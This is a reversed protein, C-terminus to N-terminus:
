KKDEPRGINIGLDKALGDGGGIRNSDYRKHNDQREGEKYAIDDKTAAHNFDVQMQQTAHRDKLHAQQNEVEHEVVKRDKMGQAKAFKESAEGPTTNIEGIQEQKLDSVNTSAAINTNGVFIDGKAEMIKRSSLERFVGQAKSSGSLVEQAAARDGVNYKQKYGEIVEQTMDRNFENNHSEVYDIKKNYSDINSKHASMSEELRKTANHAERVGEQTSKDVGLSELASENHSTRTGTSQRDGTHTENLINNSKGDSQTSSNQASVSGGVSTSVGFMGGFTKSFSADAKLHAEANQEWSVKDSTEMSDITNLGKVLEKGEDTSTDISYGSDTRKNQAISSLASAEKSILSDQAKSYSTATTNMAQTEKNLGEQYAASM